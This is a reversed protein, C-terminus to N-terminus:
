GDIRFQSAISGITRGELMHEALVHAQDSEPDTWVLELTVTADHGHANEEFPAIIATGATVEEDPGPATATDGSVTVSLTSSSVTDGGSHEFAVSTVKGNQDVTEFTDWQVSPVASGSDSPTRDAYVRWEGGQTRLEYTVTDTTREGGQPEYSLTVDVVATDDDAEVVTTGEIRTDREEFQESEAATAEQVDGEDHVYENATEPDGDAIAQFFAELTEDPDLSTSGEGDSENGLIGSCGALGAVVGVGGVLYTRRRVPPLLTLVYNVTTM